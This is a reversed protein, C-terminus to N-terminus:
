HIGAREQLWRVYLIIDTVEDQTVEPMPPMNGFQWHHAPVGQKVALLFSGHSHHNPAYVASLLSPGQDTGVASLGHCRACHANYLSEGAVFVEPVPKSASPSTPSTQGQSRLVGSFWLIGLRSADGAGWHGAAAQSEVSPYEGTM